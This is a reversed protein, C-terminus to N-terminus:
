LSGLKWSAARVWGWRAGDCRARSYMRAGHDGEWDWEERGEWWGDCEVAGLGEVADEEGWEGLKERIQRRRLVQELQVIDKIPVPRWLAIM